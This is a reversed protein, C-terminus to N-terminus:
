LISIDKTRYIVLTIVRGGLIRLPEFTSLHLFLNLFDPTAQQTEDAMYFSTTGGAVM